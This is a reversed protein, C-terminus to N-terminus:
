KVEGVYLWTVGGTLPVARMESYGESDRMLQLFDDGAPFAAATRPLYEYAERRKTIWGGVRPIVHRAYGRYMKGWAGTPQGFELIVVRGGRKTVRALERLAQVPDDVNRIGFAMSAVDYTRDLYPLDHADAWDFLTPARRRRGKERAVALMEESFDAGTVPVGGVKAQFALSLDGTGCAVDLVKSGHRAGSARVAAKRWRKDIGLSMVRNARDYRPAISDFM